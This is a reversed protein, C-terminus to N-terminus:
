STDLSRVYSTCRTMTQGRARTMDLAHSKLVLTLAVTLVLESVALEVCIKLNKSSSGRATSQM